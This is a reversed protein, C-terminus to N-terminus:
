SDSETTSTEESEPGTTSTDDSEPATTPTADPDAVTTSTVDGDESPPIVGAPESQWTGFKEEIEVDAAELHGAIWQTLAQNVAPVRLTEVIEEESPLDEDTPFSRETVLLTHFGFDTEVPGFPTGTEAELTAQAFEPVFRTPSNCGLNGGEAGSGQDTSLEMALDAFAEGSDLREIVTNAEDETEVLIHSVCVETLSDYAAERQAEIDEQAPPDLDAELAIRVQEEVLQLHAVKNLFEESVANGSLFDEFSVGEEANEVYIRNAAEGIEEETFTIGYDSEASKVVIDWQVLFGLFQAFQARSVTAADDFVLENVDGVTYDTGNVTGAVESDGAGCASVVLAFAVILLAFKKM